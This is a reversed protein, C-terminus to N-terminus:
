MLPGGLPPDYDTLNTLGTGDANVRYIDYGRLNSFDRLSFVVQDGEPSWSPNWGKDAQQSRRSLNVKAGSSTNISFVNWADDGASNTSILVHTDDPSWDHVRRVDMITLLSVNSNFINIKYLGWDGENSQAEVIINDKQNSLSLGSFSAFDLQMKKIDGELSIKALYSSSNDTVRAIVNENDIWQAYAYSQLPVPIEVSTANLIDYVYLKGLGNADLTKFYVLKKGDSSRKPHSANNSILEGSMNIATYIYLDAGKSIVLATNSPSLARKGDIDFSLNQDSDILITTDSGDSNM